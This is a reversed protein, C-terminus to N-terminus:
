RWGEMVIYLESEPVHLLEEGQIMVTQDWYKPFMVLDGKKFDAQPHCAVVEGMQPLERAESPLFLGSKTKDTQEMRRIFATRTVMRINM